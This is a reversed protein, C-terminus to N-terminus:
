SRKAGPKKRIPVRFQEEAIDIMANLLKNYLRAEELEKRLRKIEVAPDEEEEEGGGGGGAAKSFTSEFSTGGGGGQSAKVWRQLTSSSVGHRAELERYSAEGALYEAVLNEKSKGEGKMDKM